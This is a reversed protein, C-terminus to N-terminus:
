LNNVAKEIKKEYERFEKVKEKRNQKIEEMKQHGLEVALRLTNANGYKENNSRDKLFEQLEDFQKKHRDELDARVDLSM